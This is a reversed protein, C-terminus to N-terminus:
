LFNNKDIQHQKKFQEDFFSFNKNKNSIWHHLLPKMKGQNYINTDKYLQKGLATPTYINKIELYNIYYKIKQIEKFWCSDQKRTFYITKISKNNQLFNILNDTNWNILSPKLNNLKKLDDDKIPNYIKSTNENKLNIKNSINILKFNNPLIISDILDGFTLKLEICLCFIEQLTPKFNKFNKDRRDKLNLKKYKFLNMLVPWFYNRGYFFDAVNTNVDPNFTGLFMIEPEFLNNELISHKTYFNSNFDKNRFIHPIFNNTNNLLLRNKNCNNSIIINTSYNIKNLFVEFGKSDEYKALNLYELIRISVCYSCKGNIYTIKCIENFLKRNVKFINNNKCHILLNELESIIIKKNNNKSKCKLKICYYLCENGITDKSFEKFYYKKNQTLANFTNFNNPIIKKLDNYLNIIM